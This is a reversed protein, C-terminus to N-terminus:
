IVMYRSLYISAFCFTYWVFNFLEKRALVHVYARLMDAEFARAKMYLVPKSFIIVQLKRPEGHRKYVLYEITARASPGLARALLPIKCVVM